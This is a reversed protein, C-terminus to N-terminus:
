MMIAKCTFSPEFPFQVRPSILRLRCKSFPNHLLKCCTKHFFQSCPAPMNQLMDRSFFPLLSNSHKAGLCKFVFKLLCQMVFAKCMFSPEIQFQLRPLTLRLRCKQFLSSCHKAPHGTSFSPSPLQWTKCCNGHFFQSFPTAM